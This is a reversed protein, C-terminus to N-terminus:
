DHHWFQGPVVVCGQPQAQCLDHCPLLRLALVLALDDEETPLNLDLSQMTAKNVEPPLLPLDDEETPLNLDLSQMTVKKVEPPLLPLNMDLSAM